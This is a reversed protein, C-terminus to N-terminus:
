FIVTNLDRSINIYNTNNKNIVLQHYNIIITEPWRSNITAVLRSDMFLVMHHFWLLFQVYFMFVYCTFFLLMVLIYFVFVYCYCLLFPIHKREFRRAPFNNWMSTLQCFNIKLHIALDIHILCVAFVLNWRSPPPTFGRLGQNCSSGGLPPIFHIPTSFHCRGFPGISFVTFLLFKM